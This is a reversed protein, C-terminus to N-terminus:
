VAAVRLRLDRTSGVVDRIEFFVPEDGYMSAGAGPADIAVEGLIHIWFGFHGIFVFRVM